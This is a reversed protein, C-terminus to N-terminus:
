STKKSRKKKDKKVVLPETCNDNADCGPNGMGITNMPTALEERIYDILTRM